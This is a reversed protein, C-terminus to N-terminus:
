RPLNVAAEGGGNKVGISIDGNTSVTMSLGRCSLEFSADGDRSLCIEDVGGCAAGSTADPRGGTSGAPPEPPPPGSGAPPLAAPPVTSGASSAEFLGSFESPNRLFLVLHKEQIRSYEHQPGIPKSRRKIIYAAESMSNSETSLLYSCDHYKVSTVRELLFLVDMRDGYIQADSIEIGNITVVCISKTELVILEANSQLPYCLMLLLLHNRAYHMLLM